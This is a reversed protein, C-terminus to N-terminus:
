EWKGAHGIFNDWSARCAVLEPLYYVSQLADGHRARQRGRWDPICKKLQRGLRSGDPAWSRINREKAYRQYAARFREVGVESPWNEDFDSGVIRGETLCELWWALVPDLSEEKQAHMEQTLPAENFDLGGIDYDMLYRLLVRYGGAEMGERMTKFFNRDQKRGEGVSFAAFRREDHSMPALWSENGMIIIRTLNEVPYPKEGKHEILHQSGTILDKLQGESAKDGPWSAEDLVFLLLNELHSNFASNLYRRNSVVLFHSGLLAGVREVAANKGVGKEGRFVLAVLPKIEPRQIMHAFYGVLWRTLKKDGGCVNQEIHEHWMDVSRQWEVPVVEGPRTPEVAFGQWLNFFKKM